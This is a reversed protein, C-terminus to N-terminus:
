NFANWIAYGTFAALAATFILTCGTIVRRTFRESVTEDYMPQGVDYDSPRGVNTVRENYEARHADIARRVTARSIEYREALERQSYRGDLYLCAITWDRVAKNNDTVKTM